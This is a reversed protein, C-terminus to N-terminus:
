DKTNNKEFREFYGILNGSHDRVSRVFTRVSTTSKLEVEDEGNKLREYVELITKKSNENHCDFISKGILSKGGRDKYEELARRNMFVIKHNTDALVIEEDISDLLLLFTELKVMKGEMNREPVYKIL